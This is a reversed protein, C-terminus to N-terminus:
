YRAMVRCISNETHAIADEKISFGKGFQANPIVNLADDAKIAWNVNQPLAGTMAYFAEVAATSTVIGIVQGIENLLPGGSNGPQIPTSMQFWRRDDYLGSLASISGSSYKPNSGLEPTPYGITFVEQGLTVSGRPAFTLYYPSKLNTTLAAVDMGGSSVLVTADSSMGDSNIVKIKTSDQIVHMNTLATGSGDIFFCTGFSTGQPQTAQPPNLEEEEGSQNLTQIGQKPIPKVWVDSQADGCATQSYVIQGDSTECKFVHQATAITSIIVVCISSFLLKAFKM